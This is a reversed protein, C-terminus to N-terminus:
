LRDLLTKAEICDALGSGETFSGYIPALLDVAKQKEGNEAWLSALDRAARLLLMPSHQSRAIELAGRLDHEVQHRNQPEKTLRILARTRYADVALAMDGDYALTNVASEAANVAKDYLGAYAYAEAAMCLHLPVFRGAGVESAGRLGAEIEDIGSGKGQKSLAWGLYILGWAHWLSLSLNEAHAITERAAAEVMEYQRLWIYPICVGYCLVIGTTNAHNIERTWAMNSEIKQAAQEPFGLYWLNWIEYSTAAARPDHGFRQALGRHAVPDHLALSSRILELSERYNGKHFCELGLMRLGVLTTGSDPQLKAFEVFRPALDGFQLGAIYHSAWKGYLAPLQLSVDNIEDALELAREFANLTASASYGLNAILAQGMQLQLSQERRRWQEATGLQRCLRIGNEFSAIAEKYAPRAVAKRGAEEWYELSKELLGAAEAHQAKVEPAADGCSELIELLRAHLSLRKARLLSEYAADRVLAHKFLYSADPPTGRRFVLEADVLKQMAESLQPEPMASLAAITHHDFNRGIVAATQATEKVPQLRDLRSMLSDHLSTPIALVNLPRTLGYSDAEEILVDSELVAKTMEEVFLPVGDTRSAIENVLAEPLRKGKTIRLVISQTAAKALRNLALRTVLPHSAFSATFTPRATILILVRQGQVRDLALEVFELTTPDIWHVDEIVWLVPKQKALNLLQDILVALIRNRRQQPTLQLPGYRKEGGIGLLVALLQAAEKVDAGSRALLAELRDLRQDETDGATFGAAYTLQQNVPYLASDTNYPSCQYRILFNPEASVLEVLAETIRSKGIGAEGTLLVAQGDCAKAQRWQEFLLGLEQDRGVIPTTTAGQRAAFRSELSRGGLVVFAPAPGQIGKLSQPGLDVLIFTDGILRRTADAVVVTGPEALSQLRAALNPTDGVVAEEQASGSGVLDGVVVLGTAIGVRAQLPRGDATKLKAMVQIIALGARVAREAEDEHARPWGFYALIGDGMFKAVHGEFRGIEGAVANQYGRIVDSMDEPDLEASLSTSGVLDVFMITLQRREAESQKTTGSNGTRVPAEPHASPPKLESIAELLKRRHGVIVVGMEKLDDATLRPLVSLDIENEEFAPLYRELGLSTLWSAIGM